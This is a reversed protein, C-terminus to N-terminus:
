GIAKSFKSMSSYTQKAEEGPQVELKKKLVSVDSGPLHESDDKDIEAWRQVRTNKIQLHKYAVRGGDRLDLEGGRWTTHDAAAIGDKDPLKKTEKVGEVGEM